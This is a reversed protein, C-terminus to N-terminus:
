LIIDSTLLHSERKNQSIERRLNVTLFEQLAKNYIDVQSYLPRTLEKDLFIMLFHFFFYIINHIISKM